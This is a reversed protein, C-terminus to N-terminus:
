EAREYAHMRQEQVAITEAEVDISVLFHQREREVVALADTTPTPWAGAAGRVGSAHDGHGYGILLIPWGRGKREYWKRCAMECWRSHLAKNVM